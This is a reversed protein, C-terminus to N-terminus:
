LTKDESTHEMTLLVIEHDIYAYRVRYPFKPLLFKRIPPTTTLPSVEPFTELHHEMEEIEKLLNSALDPDISVYYQVASELEHFFQASQRFTM